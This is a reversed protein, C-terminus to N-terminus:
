VLSWETLLYYVGHALIYIAAVVLLWKVMLEDRSEKKQRGLLEQRDYYAVDRQCTCEYKGQYCTGGCGISKM